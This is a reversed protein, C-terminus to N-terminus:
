NQSFKAVVDVVVNWWRTTTPTGWPKDIVTSVGGSLEAARPIAVCVALDDLHCIVAGHQELKETPTAIPAYRLFSVSFHFNDNDFDRFPDIAILVQLQALTRLMVECKQMGHELLRTEIRVAIKEPSGKAQFFLNGSQLHWRVGSCGVEELLAALDVMKIRNHPSGNIARIFAVYDAMM